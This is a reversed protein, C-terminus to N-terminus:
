QIINNIKQKLLFRSIIRKIKDNDKFTKVEVLENYYIVYIEYKNNKIFVKLQINKNIILLEKKIINEIKENIKIQM